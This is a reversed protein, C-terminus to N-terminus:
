KGSKPAAFALALLANLFVWVVSFNNRKLNMIAKRNRILKYNRKDQQSKLYNNGQILSNQVLTLKPDLIKKFITRM